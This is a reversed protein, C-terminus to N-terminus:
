PQFGITEANANIIEVWGTLPNVSLEFEQNSEVRASRLFGIPGLRRESSTDEIAKKMAALDAEKGFAQPPSLDARPKVFGIFGLGKAIDESKPRLGKLFGIEYPGQDAETERVRQSKAAPAPSEDACPSSSGASSSHM